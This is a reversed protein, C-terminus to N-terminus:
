VRAPLEWRITNGDRAVERLGLKELTRASGANDADCEATIRPPSPRTIAWDLLARAAEFTYGQRRYAPLTSYGLEWTDDAVQRLGLDGILTREASLIILRHRAAAEPYREFVGAFIPLIEALEDSPWDDPVRAGVLSELADRNGMAARVIEATLPRLALRPTVIDDM